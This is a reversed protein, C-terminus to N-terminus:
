GAELNCRCYRANDKKKKDRAKKRDSCENRQVEAIEKNKVRMNIETTEEGRKGGGGGEERGEEERGGRWGNGKWSRGTVKSGHVNQGGNAVQAKHGRKREEWGGRRGRRGDLRSGGQCINGMVTRLMGDMLGRIRFRRFTCSERSGM